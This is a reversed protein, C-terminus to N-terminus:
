YLLPLLCRYLMPVPLWHYQESKPNNVGDVNWYMWNITKWEWGECKDPEKTSPRDATGLELDALMWVTLHSVEPFHDTAAFIPLQFHDDKFRVLLGTEEKVERKACEIISEDEDLKGGPFAFCGAGRWAKPGRKGILLLDKDKRIAVAVGISRM